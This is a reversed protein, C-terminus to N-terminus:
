LGAPGPMVEALKTAGRWAVKTHGLQIHGRGMFVESSKHVGVKRGKLSDWVLVLENPHLPRMSM